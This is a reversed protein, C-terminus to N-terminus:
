PHLSHNQRSTHFTGPILKTEMEHYYLLVRSPHHHSFSAVLPSIELTIILLALGGTKDGHSGMDQWALSVCSM